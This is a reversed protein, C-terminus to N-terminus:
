RITITKARSIRWQRSHFVTYDFGYPLPASSFIACAKITGVVALQTNNHANHTHNSVSHETLTLMEIIRRVHAYIFKLM